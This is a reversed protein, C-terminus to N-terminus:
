EKYFSQFTTFKNIFLSFKKFDDIAAIKENKVIPKNVNNVYLVSNPIKRIADNPEVM